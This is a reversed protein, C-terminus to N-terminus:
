NFKRSCVINAIVFPIYALLYTYFLIQMIKQVTTPSPKFYASPNVIIYVLNLFLVGTVSLEAFCKTMWSGYNDRIAELIRTIFSGDLCGRCCIDCPSCALAIFAYVFGPGLGIACVIYFTIWITLILEKQCAIICCFCIFGLLATAAVKYKPQVFLNKCVM